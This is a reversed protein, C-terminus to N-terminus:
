EAMESVILTTEDEIEGARIRTLYVQAWKQGQIYLEEEVGYWDAWTIPDDADGKVKACHKEFQNLDGDLCFSGNYRKGDPM